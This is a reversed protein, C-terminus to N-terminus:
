RPPTRRRGPPLRCSSQDHPCGTRAGSWPRSVACNWLHAVPSVAYRAGISVDAAHAHALRLDPLTRLHTRSALRLRGPEGRCGPWLLPKSDGGRRLCRRVNPPAVALTAWDPCTRLRHLQRRAGCWHAPRRRLVLEPPPCYGCPQGSHGCHGSPAEQHVNPAAALYGCARGRGREDHPPRYPREGGFILLELDSRGIRPM